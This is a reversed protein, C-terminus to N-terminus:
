CKSVSTLITVKKNTLIVNSITGTRPRIKIRIKRPLRLSISVLLQIAEEVAEMVNTKRLSKLSFSVQILLYPTTLSLRTKTRM